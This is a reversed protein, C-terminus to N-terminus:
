KFEPSQNNTNLLHYDDYRTQNNQDGFEFYYQPNTMVNEFGFEVHM